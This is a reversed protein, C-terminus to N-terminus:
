PCKGASGAAYISAIEAGTIARNYITVEDVAGTLTRTSDGAIQGIYFPMNAPTAMTMMQPAVPAADLYLTTTAGVNTVAIHHWSGLAVPQAHISAGWQSFFPAEGTSGLCYVENNQGFTGYGAFFAEMAPASDIRAWLELTRDANGLPMGQSTAQVYANGDFLFAQGFLLLLASLM